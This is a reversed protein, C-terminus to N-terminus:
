HPSSLSDNGTYFNEYIKKELNRFIKKRALFMRWLRLFGITFVTSSVFNSGNLIAQLFRGYIRGHPRFNKFRNETSFVEFKRFATKIM